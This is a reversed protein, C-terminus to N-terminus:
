EDLVLPKSAFSGPQTTMKRFYAAEVINRRVLTVILKAGIGAHILQDLSAFPNTQSREAIQEARVKGIGHLAKIKKVDGSNLVALINDVEQQASEDLLGLEQAILAKCNAIDKDKDTETPELKRKKTPRKVPTDSISDDSESGSGAVFDDDDQKNLYGADLVATPRRKKTEVVREPMRNVAPAANEKGDKAFLNRAVMNRQSAAATIVTPRSSINMTPKSVVGSAVSASPKRALLAPQSARSTLTPHALSAAAPVAPRGSITPKSTATASKKDQADMCQALMKDIRAQIKVSVEKYDSGYTRLTSLIESYLRLAETPDIIEMNKATAIKSHILKTKTCPTANGPMTPLVSPVSKEVTAQEQREILAKELQAIRVLFSETIKAQAQKQEKYQQHERQLKAIENRLEAATSDSTRSPSSFSGPGPSNTANSSSALKSSTLHAYSTSRGRQEKWQELRKKREESATTPSSSQTSAPEEETYTIASHSQLSNVVQRSKTAFNLTNYTNLFHTLGPAVNAIMIGVSHGGLSDQLLRTLKSERYPIRKEGDNLAQVVKALALLSSNINVSETMRAGRNDTKRNDENGALDILHLKAEFSKQTAQSNSSLSSRATSSSASSAKLKSLDTEITKVKLLLLAHSRSSVHNLKTAATKRNRLGLEYLSTFDTFSTLLAEKLGAIVIKRNVDERVPCDAEKPELLDYVKENYIEFYSMYVCCSPELESTSAKPKATETASVLTSHQTTAKLKPRSLAQDLVSRVTRPIIGPDERTGQMTHTKGAGTMGTCFITTNVGKFLSSLSDEIEQKFIDEQTASSTYCHDFSYQLAGDPRRPDQLLLHGTKEEDVALVCKDHGVENGLFPRIRVLVKVKSAGDDVSASSTVIRQAGVKSM